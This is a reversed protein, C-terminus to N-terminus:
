FVSVTEVKRNFAQLDGGSTATGGLRPRGEFALLGALMGTATGDNRLRCFFTENTQGAAKM